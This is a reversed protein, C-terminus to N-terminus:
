RSGGALYRRSVSAHLRQEIPTFLLGGLRPHFGNVAVRLEATQLGVQTLTLTGGSRRALMGGVIRFACAVRDHEVGVNAPELTLLAPRLGLVRLEVGDRGERVRVLGLTSRTVARWYEHGLRRAGELTREVIPEPALAWQESDVTGNRRSVTSQWGDPLRPM